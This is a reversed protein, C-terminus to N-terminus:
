QQRDRNARSVRITEIADRHLMNAIVAYGEADVERGTAKQMREAASPVHEMTMAAMTFAAAIPLNFKEHLEQALMNVALTITDGKRAEVRAQAAIQQDIQQAITTM